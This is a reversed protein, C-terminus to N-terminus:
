GIYSADLKIIRFGHFQDLGGIETVEGKELCEAGHLSVDFIEIVHDVRHLRFARVRCEQSCENFVM